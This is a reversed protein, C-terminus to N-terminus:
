LAIYSLGGGGGGDISVCGPCSALTYGAARSGASESLSLVPPAPVRSTLEDSVRSCPAFM